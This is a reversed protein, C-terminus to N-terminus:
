FCPALFYYQKGTNHSVIEDNVSSRLNGAGDGQINFKASSTTQCDTSTEEIDVNAESYSTIWVHDGLFTDECVINTGSIPLLDSNSSSVVLASDNRDNEGIINENGGPSPNGVLSSGPDGVTLIDLGSNGPNELMSDLLNDLTSKMLNETGHNHTGAEPLSVPGTIEICDFSTHTDNEKGPSDSNEIVHGKEQDSVVRDRFESDYCFRARLNRGIVPVSITAKFNQKTPPPGGAITFNLSQCRDKTLTASDSDVSIIERRNECNNATLSDNTGSGNKSNIEGFGVLRILEMPRPVTSFAWLGVSAGCLRCDLVVSNPDSQLLYSSNSNENAETLEEDIRTSVVNIGTNQGYAVLNPSQPVDAKVVSQSSKKGTDVM